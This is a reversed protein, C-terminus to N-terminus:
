PEVGLLFLRRIEGLEPTEVTIEVAQPLAATSTGTRGSAPPWQDNWSNRDEASAGAPLYRIELRTIHTMLRRARSLDEFFVEDSPPEGAFAERDIPRFFRWLSGAHWAYTVHQLDSRPRESFNVWDGRVFQLLRHQRDLTALLNKRQQKIDRTEFQEGYGLFLEQEPDFASLSESVPEALFPQGTRIARLDQDFQTFVRDLADYHAAQARGTEMAGTAATLAQVSLTAIIAAIFIAILVEVLTFGGARKM